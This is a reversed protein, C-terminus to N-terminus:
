HLLLKVLPLTFIDSMFSTRRVHFVDMVFMMDSLLFFIIKLGSIMSLVKKEVNTTKKQAIINNLKLYYSYHVTFIKTCQTPDPLLSFTKCYCLCYDRQLKWVINKRTVMIFTLPSSWLKLLNQYVQVQVYFLFM